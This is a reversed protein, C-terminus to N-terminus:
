PQGGEVRERRLALAVIVAGTSILAIPWLMDWSVQLWVTAVGAVGIAILLAGLILVLQGAEASPRTTTAHEATLVVAAILYVFLMPFIGTFVALLVALLRVARADARYYDALGGCVGALVRDSRSRYLHRVGDTARRDHRVDDTTQHTM